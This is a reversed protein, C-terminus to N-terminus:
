HSQLESTHEESRLLKKAEKAKFKSTHEEAFLSLKDLDKEDVRDKDIIRLNIGMRTLNEAVASGLAGIGLVTVTKKRLTAPKEGLEKVTDLNTYRTM